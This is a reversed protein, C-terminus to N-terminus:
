FSEHRRGDPWRDEWRLVRESLLQYDTPERRSSPWGRSGLDTGGNLEAAGQLRAKRIGLNGAPYSMWDPSGVGFSRELDM